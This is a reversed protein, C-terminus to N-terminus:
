EMQEDNKWNMASQSGPPALTGILKELEGLAMYVTGQKVKCFIM